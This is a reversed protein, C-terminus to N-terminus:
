GGRCHCLQDAPALVRRQRRANQNALDRAIALRHTAAGASKSLVRRDVPRWACATRCQCRDGGYQHRACASRRHDPGPDEQPAGPAVAALTDLSLCAIRRTTPRGPEFLLNRAIDGLRPNQSPFYRHIAFLDSTYAPEPELTLAFSFGMQQAIERAPGTYRGFPWVLARPARGINAAMQSRARSLDARIRDRYQADTEYQGTTRDYQWTIAAPINNGQPNALVGRHLNYSHSAIEVLGSAEMERAQAWSIFNARPVVRDGYLVTGDPRGGEMWTGVLAAVIPYRYVKILPFVRTYLSEYGDDFSILIPKDPLPRVGRAAAAVDDLSIANWGTGKLWDFFQALATATVADTELQDPRDVVDHFAISVFRQGTPQSRADSIMAGGVLVVLLCFLRRM